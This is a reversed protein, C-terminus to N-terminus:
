LNYTYDVEDLFDYTPATNPTTVTASTSAPRSLIAAGVDFAGKVLIGLSEASAQAGEYEVQAGFMDATFQNAIATIAISHARQIENQAANFAMSAEDRYKQWLNNQAQVSLGLVSQANAQNAANQAATNATNITRRWTANSQDILNQMNANFQERSDEIKANFKRMVNTQDSNFTNITAERNANNTAVTAGLNDYFQNVQNQSTANFQKAANQAAADTFLSQAKVQYTLLNAAQENNLNAIDMQLFSTANQQAAKM